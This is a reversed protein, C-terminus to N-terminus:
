QVEPPLPLFYDPESLPEENENFWALGSGMKVVAWRCGRLRPYGSISWHGLVCSGDTPAESIPRPKPWVVADPKPASEKALALRAAKACDACYWDTNRSVSVDFALASTTIIERVGSRGCAAFGPSQAANGWHRKPLAM